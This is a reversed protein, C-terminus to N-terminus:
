MGSGPTPRLVGAITSRGKAVDGGRETLTAVTLTPAVRQLSVCRMEELWSLEARVQDRTVRVGMQEAGQHLISCNAEHMPAEALLRLLTLRLSQTLIENFSASM